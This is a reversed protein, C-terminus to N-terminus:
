VRDEEQRRTLGESIILFIVVQGLHLLMINTVVVVNKALNRRKKRREKMKGNM